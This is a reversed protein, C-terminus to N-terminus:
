EPLRTVRVRRQPDLWSQAAAQIAAGDLTAVRAEHGTILEEPAGEVWIDGLWDIWSGNDRMAVERAKLMQARLDAAVDDTVGKKRVEDIVADMAATLETVRAPGCSFRIRLSLSPFFRYTGGTVKVGYTGGEGERIVERLRRNLADRLGSVRNASELSWPAEAYFITTVTAKNEKGSRITEEAPGARYRVHDDAWPEKAGPTGPMSGLWREVLPRLTVLDLDGVLFFTFDGADALRQRYIAAATDLRVTALKEATWPGRRPSGNWLLEDLRDNALTEPSNFRGAVNAQERQLVRNFGDETLRPRTVRLWAIQLLTEVDAPSSFGSMTESVSGLNVSVGARRGALTRTVADPDLAGLGSAGEIDDALKATSLDADPVGAYGGMSRMSFKVQDDVFPTQKIVVRAGNSLTWETVGLTDVTRESVVKGPQPPDRVLPEAVVDVPPEVTRARALEARLAEVTPMPAPDTKPHLILLVRGTEPFIAAAMADVEAETVTPLVSLMTAAEQATGPVSEGYVVHRVLESVRSDSTETAAGDRAAITSTTRQARARELESPTVGHQRLRAVEDLVVAMGADLAGPKAGGAVLWTRVGPQNRTAQGMSGLLPGAPERARSSLRENLVSMALEEVVDARKASAAWSEARPARATLVIAAGPAEPEDLAVVQPTTDMTPIPVVPAEGSRAPVGAFAKEIAVQVDAPTVTGAVVVAMLEPRYWRNWFAKLPEAEASTISAETGIPLRDAWPTGGWIAPFAADAIRAQMGLSGRWEEHVVGRESRVEAPDFTIGSAIDAFWTLAKELQQPDDTAIQLKYVTSEVSTAANLDAGFQLGSSEIFHILDSKPFHTTGNFALHEVLHAYGREDDHEVGSGVKVVLRLEARNAPRAGPEIYWDLGNSLEGRQVLPDWVLQADRPPTHCALLLILLM